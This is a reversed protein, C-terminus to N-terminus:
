EEYSFPYGLVIRVFESFPINEKATAEVHYTSFKGDEHIIAVSYETSNNELVKEIKAAMKAANEIHNWGCNKSGITMRM